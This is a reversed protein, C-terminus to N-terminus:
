LVRTIEFTMGGTSRSGSKGRQSSFYLRSGDPSFAPGTIESLWHGEIRVLPKAFGNHDLFCLEMNDGDEAVLPYGGNSVTIQDPSRLPKDQNEERWNKIWSFPNKIGFNEKGDYFISLKNKVPDFLWVRHDNTTTFFIKGDFYAIGEGREFPTAEPLQEIISEYKVFPDPVKLWVISGNKNVKAAQLEGKDYFADTYVEGGPIFRYFFGAMDDHTMYIYNNYPDVAAGEHRFAGLIKRKKPFRNDDRFPSTEWVIGKDHEECSLWTGWPTSGGSCNRNSNELISYSDEIQGNQNFKIAGAGGKSGGLESNSVYIWGNDKTPFVSAGDPSGHWVHDGHVKEGSKAILTCKLGEPVLVGSVDSEKLPSVDDWGILSPNFFNHKNFSNASSAHAQKNVGIIYPSVSLTLLGTGFDKLFQRRNKNVM